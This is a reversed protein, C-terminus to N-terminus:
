RRRDVAALDRHDADEAGPERRDREEQAAYQERERRRHGDDDGRRHKQARPRRTASPRRAEAASGGRRIDRRRRSARSPPCRERTWKTSPFPASTAASRHNALPWTTWPVSVRTTSRSM